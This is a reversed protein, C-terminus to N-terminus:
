NILIEDTFIWCSNNAGVHWDPCTLLSNAKMRLYRTETNEIDFRYAEKFRNKQTPSIQTNIKGLLSWNEKDISGFLEVSEPLFIWALYDQLFDAKVVNITQVSDLDIIIDMNEGEWGLFNWNYDKMGFIRNNLANLGNTEYKTSYETNSEINKGYALNPKTGNEIYNMVMNKYEDPSLGHEEYREINYQKAKQTFDLLRNKMNENITWTNGDKIFYSLEPTYDHLSIDLIAFDLALSAKEVRAYINPKHEVARKAEKWLGEYEKILEPTLFCDIADWPYGYINLFYTSKQKELENHMKTLYQDIFPAAEKYYGILFDQRISDINIYPDWLLKALMYQKLEKFDSYSSGSAQQFMKYSNNEVFFQINDQLVNHNPFPSVLNRYQVTYDWILIDETIAAWDNLDKVFSSSRPDNQLPMSRNCEITCLVVNVNDAPKINVPASRTYQYALTSITKNPFHKAVQNVFHIMAGSYTGYKIYQKKCEECQCVNYHDNQSVSWHSSEPKALILKELNSTLEELMDKNSLCLQGNQIRHGNIEAFYEPHAEFYVVPPILDDFTHVWMGFEHRHDHLKHWQMFSNQKHNVFNTERHSIKPSEKRSAPIKLTKHKPIEICDPTYFRCGWEELLSYVGYEIAKPTSGSIKIHKETAEIKFGDGQMSKDSVLAITCLSSDSNNDVIKTSLMKNMYNKLTDAPSSLKNHYVINIQDDTTHSFFVQSNCSCLITLFFFYFTIHKM